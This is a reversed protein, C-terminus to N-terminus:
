KLFKMVEALSLHNAYMASAVLVVLVTFFIIKLVHGNQIFSVSIQAEEETSANMYYRYLKGTVPVRTGTFVILVAIASLIWYANIDFHFVGSSKNYCTMLMVVLAVLEFILCAWTGMFQGLRKDLMQHQSFTQSKM